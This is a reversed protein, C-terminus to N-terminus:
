QAEDKVADKCSICLNTFVQSILAKKITRARPDSGHPPFDGNSKGNILITSLGEQHSSLAMLSFETPQSILFDSIFDNAQIKGEKPFSPLLPGLPSHQPIPISLFPVSLASEWFQQANRWVKGSTIGSIHVILSWLLLYQRWETSVPSSCRSLMNHQHCTLDQCHRLNTVSCKLQCFRAPSFTRTFLHMEWKLLFVRGVRKLSWREICISLWRQCMIDKQDGFSIKRFGESSWDM